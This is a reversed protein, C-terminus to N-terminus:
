HIISVRRTLKGSATAISVTYLGESWDSVNVVLANSGCNSQYVLQGLMNRVQVQTMGEAEIRLSQDAPNPYLNVAVFENEEVETPSYYVKLSFKNPDGKISAPASTCDTAAYYSYLRYYYFGEMNATNDKYSTTSASLLKIRTYTGDEGQKRYLYYGSLGEAEPREWILKIRYNDGVYEFDLNSAAMCDGASACTENSEETEGGADLARVTYCHGNSFNEDLFSRESGEHVMGYLQDDRYINFGYEPDVDSQWTLVAGEETTESRLDYPFYSVPDHGCSNNVNLFIGEQMGSSEGSYTFVTNGESDKIIMSMNSVNNSPATWGFSSRGVPVAFEYTAPISNNITMRQIERGNVSYLSVYGGNWGQFGSSQMIIKWNCSPLVLVNKAFASIGRQGGTVAYVAYDFSDFYPITEDVFVMEAGPTVNDESYIVQGNRTVVIQDVAVLTDNTLTVSPNKWSVSVSLANDEIPVVTLDTPANPTAAYVEAPVYNFIGRQGDTYGHEDVNFWGDSSGGWGWNMHIQDYDDYGDFVYAHGGGAHVVPWRMDFSNIMLEMYGEHTYDKREHVTMANTYQFYTPMKVTLTNTVAGSGTPSYNMDVSIGVHYQLLAIAQIFTQSSSASVSVPMNDWDYTTAGFDACLQGYTNHVYCYSGTGQKPHDWYKMVQSAATAVCGAYCRGGPGGTATPCYYNYPYNQNWKTQVLYEADKGGHRSVMRGSKELMDWDAAVSARATPSQTATMVGQRIGELYDALAPAMDNIDFNGEDSYGIVPRYRDDAAFIVFGTEGVNFIYYCADGRDSFATHVLTLDTSQRTIVFNAMVFSQALNRATEQNIPRAQLMISALALLSLLLKKMTLHLKFQLPLYIFFPFM